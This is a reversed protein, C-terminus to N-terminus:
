SDILDRIRKPPIRSGQFWDSELNFEGWNCAYSSVWSANRTFEHLDELNKISVAPLLTKTHDPKDRFPGTVVEVTSTVAMKGTIKNRYITINNGPVHPVLSGPYRKCEYLSQVIKEIKESITTEQYGTAGEPILPVDLHEPVFFIEGRFEITKM